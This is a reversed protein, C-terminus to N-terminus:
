LTKLLAQLERWREGEEKPRLQHAWPAIIRLTLGVAVLVERFFQPLTVFSAYSVSFGTPSEEPANM